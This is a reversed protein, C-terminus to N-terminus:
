ADGPDRRANPMHEMQRRDLLALSGSFRRDRVSQGTEAAGEEAANKV